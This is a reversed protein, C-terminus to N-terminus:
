IHTHEHTGGFVIKGNIITQIVQFQKDLIVLNACKGVKISGMLYDLGLSKAPNLSAMKSAEYLPLKFDEILNKYGDNMKLISGALTQDELRADTKTIIVKQGGLESLGEPMYKARMSDTILAIGNAGKMKYLIQAAEKSVHIRDYILEALVEDHLLAAGVVGIDRHHLPTMANYTHTMSSIGHEIAKKVTKYDAKTHAISAVIQKSKLYDILGMAGDVEPALSVKKILHNSAKELLKFTDTNAKIICNKPQAGAAEINIFPGELHIGLVQSALPNQRKHYLAINSLAQTIHELTQTMTTPLFGTTGEKVLSLAMQEINEIHPDMADCNNSGHIHLDIFGPVLYFVEDTEPINSETIATIFGGEVSVDGYIVQDELVVHLGKLIM